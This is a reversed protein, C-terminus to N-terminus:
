EKDPPRGEPPPDPAGAPPPAAAGPADPPTLGARLLSGIGKNVAGITGYVTDSILDHTKRVVRTTDRTAPIAEFIGFPISAIGHHVTRVTQTGGSVAAEAFRQVQGLQAEARQLRQAEALRTELRILGMAADRRAPGIRVLLVGGVVTAALVGLTAAIVLM